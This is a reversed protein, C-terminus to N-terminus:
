LALVGQRLREKAIACYKEELEIGIARVGRLKAAVLTTGSGMFPDLVTDGGVGLAAEWRHILDGHYITSHEDQFYPAPLSM